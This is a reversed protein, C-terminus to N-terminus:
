DHRALHIRQLGLRQRSLQFLQGQRIPEIHLRQRMDLVARQRFVDLPHSNHNIGAGSAQPVGRRHVAVGAPVLPLTSGTTLSLQRSGAILHGVYGPHAQLHRLRRSLTPSFGHRFGGIRPTM